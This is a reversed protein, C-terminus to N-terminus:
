LEGVNKELNRIHKKSKLHKSKSAMHYIHDCVGCHFPNNEMCKKVYHKDAEKREKDTFYKKPRGCGRKPKMVTTETM